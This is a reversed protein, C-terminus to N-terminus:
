LWCQWHCAIVNGNQSFWRDTITITTQLIICWWDDAADKNSLNFRCQGWWQQQHTWPSNWPSTPSVWSVLSPWDKWRRWREHKAWGTFAESCNSLWGNNSGTDAPKAKPPMPIILLWCSRSWCICWHHTPRTRNKRDQIPVSAPDTPRRDSSLCSPLHSLNLCFKKLYKLKLWIHLSMGSVSIVDYSINSLRFQFNFSDRMWAVELNFSSGDQSRTDM